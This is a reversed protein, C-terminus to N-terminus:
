AQLNPTHSTLEISPQEYRAIDVAQSEVSDVWRLKVPNLWTGTCGHIQSSSVPCEVYICIRRSRRYQYRHGELVANLPTNHVSLYLVDSPTYEQLNHAHKM